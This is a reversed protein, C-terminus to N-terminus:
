KCTRTVVALFVQSKGTYTKKRLSSILTAETLTYNLMISHSLVYTNFGTTVALINSAFNVPGIIQSLSHKDNCSFM